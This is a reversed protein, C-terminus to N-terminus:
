HGQQAWSWWVGNRIPYRTFISKKDHVFIPFEEGGLQYLKKLKQQYIEQVEDIIIAKGKVKFGKQKFIDIFSVCVNKNSKINEVSVPSAINAIMLHDGDSVFMEKPSVNPMGNSSVTALWCLVCENISNQIEHNMMMCGM